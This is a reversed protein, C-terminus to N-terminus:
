FTWRTARGLGLGALGIALLALPVPEAAGNVPADSQVRIDIEGALDDLLLRFVQQLAGTEQLDVEGGLHPSALTVGPGDSQFSIAFNPGSPSITLWDSLHTLAADDFLNVTVAGFPLLVSGPPPGFIFQSSGANPGDGDFLITLPLWSAKISTSGPATEVVDLTYARAAAAVALLLVACLQPLRRSRYAM